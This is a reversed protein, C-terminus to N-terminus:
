ASSRDRRRLWALCAGMLLLFVVGCAQMVRGILLSYRGTAPDYGCCLLVLQDILTGLKGHSANVLALRLSDPPFAVGFFYQAAVLKNSSPDNTLLVAGAPHAYQDIREDYFYRFGVADALDRVSSENATLLNWRATDADPDMVAIHHASKAADAATERPDISVFAIEYDAGPRLSLKSAATGLGQLVVDCLNPCRYYGLSLLLPKGQALAALTVPKGQADNFALDRPIPAGLRQDWGARSSLDAPPVPAGAGFAPVSLMLLLLLPPTRMM